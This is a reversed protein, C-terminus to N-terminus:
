IAASCSYKCAPFTSCGFFAGFKGIRKVLDGGCGEMPCRTGTKDALRKERHKQQKFEWPPIYNGLAAWIGRKHRQADDLAELYREDPGYRELVWAWGNLVMELEINRTVLLPGRFTMANHLHNSSTRFQAVSYDQTLFPVGVIRKHRDVIQGTDMKMRVELEVWRDGILTALFEKAERGGPQELEPADIFAFRVAVQLESQDSPSGTLESAKIRTLFGDGDFIKLVPVRITEGEPNEPVIIVSNEQNM